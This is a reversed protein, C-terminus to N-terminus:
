RLAGRGIGQNPSGLSEKPKIYRHYMVCLVMVSGGHIGSLLAIAFFCCCLAAADPVSLVAVRLLSCGAEPLPPRGCGPGGAPGRKTGPAAAAEGTALPCAPYATPAQFSARVWTEGMRCSWASWGEPGLALFGLQFRVEMAIPGLLHAVPSLRLKPRTRGALAFYGTQLAMHTSIHM